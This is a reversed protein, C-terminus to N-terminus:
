KIGLKRDEKEAAKIGYGLIIPLPLIICALTFTVMSTITLYIPWGFPICLFMAIISILMLSYGIRKSIKVRKRIKNREISVLDSDQAHTANEDM